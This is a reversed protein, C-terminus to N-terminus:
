ENSRTWSAASAGWVQICAEGRIPRAARSGKKIRVPLIATERGGPGADIAVIKSRMFSRGFQGNLMRSSPQEIKALSGSKPPDGGSGSPAWLHDPMRPPLREGNERALFVKGRHGGATGAIACIEPHFPFDGVGM